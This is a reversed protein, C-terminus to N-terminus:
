AEVYEGRRILRDAQKVLQKVDEVSAKGVDNEASVNASFVLLAALAIMGTRCIRIFVKFASVTSFMM